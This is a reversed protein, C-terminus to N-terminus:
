KAWCRSTRRQVPWHVHLLRITIAEDRQQKTAAISPNLLLPPRKVHKLYSCQNKSKFFCRFYKYITQQQKKINKKRLRNYLQIAMSVIKKFGLCFTIGSEFFHTKRQGVSPRYTVIIVFNATNENRIRKNYGKGTTTTVCFRRHCNSAILTPANLKM